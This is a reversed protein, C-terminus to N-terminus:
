YYLKVIDTEALPLAFTVRGAAQTFPLKGARVAEVRRVKGAAEVSVTLKKVPQLTYNSLPVVIGRGTEMCVADILPLSCKVPQAARAQLAPAVILARLPAPYQWPAWSRRLLDADGLVASAAPTGVPKAGSKAVADAVKQRATLANWMYALGPLGGYAYVTGKGGAGKVAAPAGDAFTAVVQAGDRPQLGAKVALLDCATGDTTKLQGGPKLVTLNSGCSQFAQFEDLKAWAAPMIEDLTALPANYEDRTGAGATAVLTGGNKVWAALAAAAAKTLNPGSLYCVTYGALGGDAVTQESIFDSPIQGHTLALWTFMRDYGYAFTRGITWIDTSSNYLIAVQAKKKKAPYLLDEAGGIVKTVAANAFWTEPKAYWGSCNWPPGGEHGAWSPGYWFNEWIKVDRATQSVANVQIDWPLRGAYAILYHGVSQGRKMAASRMLEVNYTSCQPSAAGNSWNEGWISNQDDSELLEFYDVGQSYFNACYVAGDSFNANVPFATSGYAQQLQERQVRFFKSLAHTRFRQSYYYLAPREASQAEEVPKVDDWTAAGLEAPIKGLEKMWARFAETCAACKAIHSLPQGTPEDMLSAFAIEAPKKGTKAFAEAANKAAGTMTPIDPQSYCDNKLYWLGGVRPKTKNNFGFYDLTKWEREAVKKDVPVWGGEVAASAFFPFLVPSKGFAPWKAADAVKGTANAIDIDMQLRPLNAPSLDPPVILFVGGPTADRRFTKVIAKDDPATAFDITANLRPAMEYYTYRTTMELLAGSDPYVTRTINVWGTSENNKLLAEARSPALADQFGDKSIAHHNYWPDRYHDAFIHVYVPKAYGDGLTVRMFIQPGYAVYDPKLAKDDTLLMCDVYRSYGSCNQNKYKSLRIIAPGAALHLDIAEWLYDWTPADKKTELDFDRGAVEQGDQLVAVHFPGPWPSQFYRVHLRYDGEAPVLLSTSATSDGAGVAGFLARARSAKKQLSANEWGLKAPDGQWGDGAVRFNECEVFFTAAPLPFAAALGLLCLALLLLCSKLDKM